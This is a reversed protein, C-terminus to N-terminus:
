DHSDEKHPRQYEAFLSLWRTADREARLARDKVVLHLAIVCLGLLVLTILTFTIM